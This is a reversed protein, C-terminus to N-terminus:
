PAVDRSQSDVLEGPYPFRCQKWRLIITDNLTIFPLVCEVVALLSKSEWQSSDDHRVMVTPRQKADEDTPIRDVPVRYTADASYVGACAERWQGYGKNWYDRDRRGKDAETAPRYGEGIEPQSEVYPRGDTTGNKAMSDLGHIAISAYVAHRELRTVKRLYHRARMVDQLEEDTLKRQTMENEKTNTDITM